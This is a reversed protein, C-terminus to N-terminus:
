AAVKIRRPLAKAQKPITIELVGHTDRAKVNEADVTNPLIFRRHFRGQGREVRRRVIDEDDVNKMGRREGSLTLVSDQLTIEVDK